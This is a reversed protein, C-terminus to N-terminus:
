TGCLGYGDWAVHGGPTASPTHPDPATAATFKPTWYTEGEVYWTGSGLPLRLGVQDPGISFDSSWWTWPAASWRGSTTDYAEVPTSSLYRNLVRKMPSHIWAGSRYSYAWVLYYIYQESTAYNTGTGDVFSTGVGEEGNIWEPQLTVYTGWYDQNACRWSYSHSPITAASAAGTHVLAAALPVAAVSLVVALLVRLRRVQLFSRDSVHGANIQDSAASMLDETESTRDGQATTM